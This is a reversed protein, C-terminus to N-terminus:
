PRTVGDPAGRVILARALNANLDSDVLPLGGHAHSIAAARELLALADQPRQQALYVRALNNLSAAVEPHDPGRARERIALAREYLARAEAHAGTAEHVAALDNLGVAVNPHDPGLAQEWIALARESLARAEAHAGTAKRVAALNILSEAVDPHNPGLAQEGIALARENLARAEAYEGALRHLNALNNLSAAVNPHDRGLAQEWIALAREYLARAEASAGTAEHVNALNNLSAAVDPHDRGVAQERIALAREHLARAQAYAGTHGHVLALNNLTQAVDPHHHGLAPERIALAREYLAQAEADAGAAAHANALNNLTQAVDPHNPGLTQARIALAREYLARAEAYAGMAEHVVGLNNLRLAESLGERDGAHMLAVEAHLAWARADGHRARRYGVIFILDSAAGAALEWAGTRAAEFYAMASAEEAEEYSGTKELLSGERARAAALLPPWDPVAAAQERAHAAVSLAEKFNGALGLSQARSLRVRVDRIAERGQTPPAPQRQLLGEDLCADVARLKAVATVAKQVTTANARGLEAVLSALEMERDELCWVARDLLAEGWLARVDANLCVDTRAQKWAGAREDLWPMVRDATTEADSVGTAVFAERLRLRADDNWADDISAGTAACVAVRRALDWRRYGEVGAGFLAIGAVVVAATRLRARAKGRELAALLAAMTPWRRAPEIALGREIVRRLWGPVGLGRPPPRRQGSLVAAALTMMTEGAFPREGYLLEWAMVSWGFQDTAPEAEQGQWQEPAMYAPTGQVAGVATLRSGLIAHEPQARTDAAHTSALAPESATAGRGHALGFDMVRVRGDRGIMVNDPKLDRHVLGVAHAAAVGRAVDALTPLVESWRRPGAEAWAALTQGAVFEMAVWVSDGHTGVDHVAVVNPHSLKALAQAERVLRTRGDSAVSGGARPLLLKLAVKRDLDPDYAAYVVGMGGAGLTGLLVFRGVAAGRPM